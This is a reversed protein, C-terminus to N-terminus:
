LLDRRSDPQDQETSNGNRYDIGDVPSHNAWDAEGPDGARKLTPGPLGEHSGYHGPFSLKGGYM